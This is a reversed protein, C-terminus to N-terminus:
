ANAVAVGAARALSAQREDLTVLERDHAAATAVILLDTAKATRGEARAVALVEGYREAVPEDVPLPAFARRIAELRLRRVNRVSDDGALLVGAHLEGLSIVSIAAAPPLFTVVAPDSILISTDLLSGSV